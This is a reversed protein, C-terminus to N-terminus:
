ECGSTPPAGSTSGERAGNIGIWVLPRRKVIQCCPDGVAGEDRDAAAQGRALGHGQQPGHQATADLARGDDARRM